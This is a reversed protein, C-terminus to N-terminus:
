DDFKTTFIHKITIKIMIYEQFLNTLINKRFCNTVLTDNLYNFDKLNTKSM